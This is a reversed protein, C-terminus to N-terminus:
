LHNFVGNKWRISVATTFRKLRRWCWRLSSGCLRAKFRGLAYETPFKLPSIIFSIQPNCSYLKGGTFSNAWGEGGTIILESSNTQYPESRIHSKITNHTISCITLLSVNCSMARSELAILVHMWRALKFAKACLMTSIIRPLNDKPLKSPFKTWSWTQWVSFERDYNGNHNCIMTKVYMEM